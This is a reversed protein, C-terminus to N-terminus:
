RAPLDRLWDVLLRGVEGPREQQVWHGCGPLLVSTTRPARGPLDDIADALWTVTADRDGAVFLLPQTLAAGRHDALDAWDRDANRYPALAGTVGTRRLAQVQARLDEASSWPPLPGRPFRDSMRAGRPVFFLGDPGPSTHATGSLGATFGAVWAELDATMDAEAAGPRQFWSVYFEPDDGLAAFAESPRPGGPPTYPVALLGVARVVDPRLLAATSAVPSGVDHGVVVATEEGLGRVVDVVDEVLATVRYAAPDAPVSSGGYGRLDVAVARFGAGALVPLQHRWSRWTEPFGHLLLVLPGAGQEVLHVHGGRVPLVRSRAPPPEPTVTPRRQARTGHGLSEVPPRHPRVGNGSRCCGGPVPVRGGAQPFQGPADVPLGRSPM